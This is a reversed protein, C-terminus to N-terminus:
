YNEALILVIITVNKCYDINVIIIHRKKKKLSNLAYKLIFSVYYIKKTPPMSLLQPPPRAVGNTLHTTASDVGLHGLPPKAM